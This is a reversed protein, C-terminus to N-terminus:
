MGEGRGIKQFMVKAKLASARIAPHPDHTFFEIVAFGLNCVYTQADDRHAVADCAVAFELDTWKMKRMLWEDLIAAFTTQTQMRVCVAASLEQQSALFRVVFILM